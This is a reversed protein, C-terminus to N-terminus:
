KTTTSRLRRKSHENEFFTVSQHYSHSDINFRPLAYRKFSIKNLPIGRVTLAFQYDKVHKLTEKDYQGHSYAFFDVPKKLVRELYTKSSSLERIKEEKTLQPLIEHTKGHSGVTVLPDDNMELLQKTTIYGEQDLFDTVIFVTFPINLKKLLPYAVTYVDELGDDFTIAIKHKVKKQVADRLATFCNQYKLLFQEFLSYALVCGSKQPQPQDTVHHFIVIYSSPLSYFLAKKAIKKLAKIM